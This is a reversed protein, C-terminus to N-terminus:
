YDQGPPVPAAQDVHYGNADLLLMPPNVTLDLHPPDERTITFTIASGPFYGSEYSQTILSVKSGISPVVDLNGSWICSGSVYVKTKM